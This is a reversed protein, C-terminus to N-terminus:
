ACHVRLCGVLIYKDLQYLAAEKYALRTTCITVPIHLSQQAAYFPDSCFLCPEWLQSVTCTAAQGQEQQEWGRIHHKPSEEMHHLQIKVLARLHLRGPPMLM